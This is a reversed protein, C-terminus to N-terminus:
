SKNHRQLFNACNNNNNNNNPALDLCYARHLFVISQETQTSHETCSSWQISSGSLISQTRFSNLARRKNFTRHLPVMLHQIWAIHATYSLQQISLKHQVNQAPLGSLTQTSHKTCSSRFTSLKHQINQSPPGSLALNINFTRHLLVTFHETQTSHETCSSRFTSLKTACCPGLRQVIMDFCRSPRVPLCHRSLDTWGANTENAKIILYIKM